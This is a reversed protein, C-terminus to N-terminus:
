LVRENQDSSAIQGAMDTELRRLLHLERLGGDARGEASRRAVDDRAPDATDAIRKLSAVPDVLDGVMVLRVAQQFRTVSSKSYGHARAFQARTLLMAEAGLNV